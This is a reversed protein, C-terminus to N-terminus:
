SLIPVIIEDQKKIQQEKQYSVTAEETMYLTVTNNNHTDIIQRGFERTLSGFIEAFGQQGEDDRERLRMGVFGEGFM